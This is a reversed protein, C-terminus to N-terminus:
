RLTLPRSFSRASSLVKLDAFAPQSMSAYNVYNGVKKTIEHPKVFPRRRVRGIPFDVWRESVALPGHPRVNLRALSNRVLLTQFDRRTCQHMTPASHHHPKKKPLPYYIYINCNAYINHTDVKERLPCHQTLSLSYHHSM